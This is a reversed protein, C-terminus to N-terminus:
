LVFYNDSSYFLAFMLGRHIYFLYWTDSKPALQSCAHSLREVGRVSVWSMARMCMCAHMYTACMRAM